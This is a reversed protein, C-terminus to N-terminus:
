LPCSRHLLGHGSHAAGPQCSSEERQLVNTPAAMDRGTQAASTGSARISQASRTGITVAPLGLGSGDQRRGSIAGSQAQRTAARHDTAAVGGVSRAAPISRRCDWFNNQLSRVDRLPDDWEVDTALQM